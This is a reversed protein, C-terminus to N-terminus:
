RNRMFRPPLPPLPIGEKFRRKRVIRDRLGMFSDVIKSYDPHSESEYHYQSVMEKEQRRIIVSQNSLTDKDQKNDLSILMMNPQSHHFSNIDFDVTLPPLVPFHNSYKWSIAPSTQAMAMTSCFLFTLVMRGAASTMLIRKM